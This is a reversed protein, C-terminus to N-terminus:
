DGASELGTAAKLSGIEERDLYRWEGPMLGDANINGMSIRTLSTVPHGVAACMRKVERKKGEHLTLHLHTANSLCHIIEAQAPATLGDELRTGNRLKELADDGVAGRVWVSYVKGVEYKPHALRHALEGDNTLILVGEVDIDLRGVPFIRDRVGDICDIVTSRGHTDTVTCVVDKPKNLVIYIKEDPSLPAGDLLVTDREPDVSDGLTATGGNIQVRGDEILAECKRRSAVGCAALYKQLRVM